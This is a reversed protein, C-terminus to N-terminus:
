STNIAANATQWDEFLLVARKGQRAAPVVVEELLHPPVTRSFDRWKGDEGDYVDKPHHRSIWQGWRELTLMGDSRVEVAPLAPDGVFLHRVPHGRATLAEALDNMRTALGGVFAYRDPGEFAVLVVNWVVVASLPVVTDTRWRMRSSESRTRAM